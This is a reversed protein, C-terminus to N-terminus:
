DQREQARRIPCLPSDGLLWAHDGQAVLEGEAMVLIRDAHGIGNLKHAIIIVTRGQILCSLAQSRHVNPQPM